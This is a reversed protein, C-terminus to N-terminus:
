MPELIKLSLFAFDIKSILLHTIYKCIVYKNNINIYLTLTHKNCTHRVCVCVCV